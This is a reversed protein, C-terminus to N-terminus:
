YEKEVQAILDAVHDPAAPAPAPASAEAPKQAPTQELQTAAPQATSVPAQTPTAPNAPKLAPASGPPLLSVPKQATQCAAVTFILSALVATRVYLKTFRM